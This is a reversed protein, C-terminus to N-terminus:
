ALLTWLIRARGEERYLKKRIETNVTDDDGRVEETGWNEEKCKYSPSWSVTDKTGRKPIDKGSEWWTDQLCLPCMVWEQSSSFMKQALIPLGLNLLFIAQPDWNRLSHLFLQKKKEAQSLMTLVYAHVSDMCKGWWPFAQRYCYWGTSSISSYLPFEQTWVHRVKLRDWYKWNQSWYIDSKM